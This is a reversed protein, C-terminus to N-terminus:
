RGRFKAYLFLSRLAMQRFNYRVETLQARGWREKRKLARVAVEAKEESDMCCFLICRKMALMKAMEGIKNTNKQPM